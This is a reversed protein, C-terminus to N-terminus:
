RQKQQQQEITATATPIAFKDVTDTKLFNNSHNVAKMHFFFFFLDMM